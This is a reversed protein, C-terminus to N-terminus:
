EGAVRELLALTKTAAKQWSFEGSRELARACLDTHLKSDEGLLTMADLLGSSSDLDFLLGGGAVIEALAGNNAAIVPVGRIMSELVPLGFGEYYSPLILAHALTYIKDLNEDSLNKFHLVKDALKLSQIQEAIAPQGWGTGAVLVLAMPSGQEILKKYSNLLLVLNKRPENTGVFVYFNKPLSQGAVVSPETDSDINSVSIRNFPAEYVVTIKDACAPYFAEIESATFKSVAVLQDAKRLSFPMLLKELWLNKRRMTEPFRQWVLDHVTVVTKIDRKLLLPLHHRPSWFVDLGDQQSWRAFGIQSIWLNFISAKSHPRCRITVNSCESFHDIQKTDYHRDCYLFWQHDSHQDANLLQQLLAQTYRGIGTSPHLLPRIDVGIRM